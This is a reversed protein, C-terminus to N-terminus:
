GAGLRSASANSCDSSARNSFWAPMSASVCAVGREDLMIPTVGWCVNSRAEASARDDQVPALRLRDGVSDGSTVPESIDSPAKAQRSIRRGGCRTIVAWSEPSNAPWCTAPQTRGTVSSRIMSSPRRNKLDLDECGATLFGAALVAALALVNRRTLSAHTRAIMPM